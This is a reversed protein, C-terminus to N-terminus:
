ANKEWIEKKEANSVQLTVQLTTVNDDQLKLAEKVKVLDGMAFVHMAENLLCKIAVVQMKERDRPRSFERLFNSLGMLKSLVNVETPVEITVFQKALSMSAGVWVLPISIFRSSTGSRSQTAYSSFLDYEISRSYYEWSCSTHQAM